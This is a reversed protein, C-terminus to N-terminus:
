TQCIKYSCQYHVYPISKTIDQWQHSIELILKLYIKWCQLTLLTKIWRSLKCGLGITRNREMVICFINLEGLEWSQRKMNNSTILKPTLFQALNVYHLILWSSNLLFLIKFFKIKSVKKKKTSKMEWHSKHWAWLDM